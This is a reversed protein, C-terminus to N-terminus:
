TIRWSDGNWKVPWRSVTSESVGLMRALEAQIRVHDFEGAAIMALAEAKSPKSAKVTTVKCHDPASGQPAHEQTKRKTTPLSGNCARWVVLAAHTAVIGFAPLLAAGFIADCVDLAFGEIRHMNRLVWALNVYTSSLGGMLLLALVWRRGPANRKVITLGFLAAFLSGEVVCAAITALWPMSAPVM